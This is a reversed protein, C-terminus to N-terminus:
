KMVGSTREETSLHTTCQVDAISCLLTNTPVKDTEKRSSCCSESSSARSAASIGTPRVITDPWRQPAPINMSHLRCPDREWLLCRQAHWDTMFKRQSIEWKRKIRVVNWLHGTVILLQVDDDICEGFTQFRQGVIHGFLLVPHKYLLQCFGILINETFWFRNAFFQTQTDNLRMMHWQGLFIPAELLNREIIELRKATLVAFLHFDFRDHLAVHQFLSGM